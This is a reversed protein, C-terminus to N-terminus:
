KALGLAAPDRNRIAAAITQSQALIAAKNAPKEDMLVADQLTTACRGMHACFGLTRLSNASCDAGLSCRALEFATLITGPSAALPNPASFAGHKAQYEVINPLAAPAWYLARGGSTLLLDRATRTVEVMQDISPNNPIDLNLDNPPSSSKELEKPWLERKAILDDLRIRKLGACRTALQRRAEDYARMQQAPLNPPPPSVWGWNRVYVWCMDTLYQAGVIAEPTGSDIALRVWDYIQDASLSDLSVTEAALRAAKQPARDPASPSPEPSPPKAVNSSVAGTPSPGLLPPEGGVGWLGAAVM